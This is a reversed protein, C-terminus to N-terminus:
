RPSASKTCDTPVGLALPEYPECVAAGPMGKMTTLAEVEERCAQNRLLEENILSELPMVTHTTADQCARGRRSCDIRVRARSYVNAQGDARAGRERRAM